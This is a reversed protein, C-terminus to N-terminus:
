RRTEAATSNANQRPGGGADVRCAALADLVRRRVGRDTLAEIHGGGPLIHLTKPERAAAYLSHAHEVGVIPDADGHLILVPMPTLEGIAAVPDFATDIDASLPGSFPATLPFEALKERVIRRYGAFAGDTVLLCFRARLPSRALATVAVSGGLSQGLVAVPRDALGDLAFVEAFAAEADLHVGALTPEGDSRGYGRYDVAFVNYGAAPLWEVLRVHTSINQANGHLHVVTGEADGEAPLFWGHLRVGDAAEFWVDRADLGLEAPTAVHERLPQFFLATCGAAPLALLVLVARGILLVLAPLDVM